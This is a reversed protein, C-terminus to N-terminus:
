LAQHCRGLRQAIRHHPRHHQRVSPSSGYSLHRWPETTLKNESLVVNVAGVEIFEEIDAVRQQDRLTTGRQVYFHFLILAFKDLPPQVPATVAVTSM